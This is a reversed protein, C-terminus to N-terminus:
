PQARPKRLSQYPADDSIPPIGGRRTIVWAALEHGAAVGDDISGGRVRRHLYGANFADGAGTTDLPAVQAPVPWRVGDAFCGEEGLKVVVEGVGRDRWAAVIAAPDELGILQREDERMPSGINCLSIARDHAARAAAESEWLAPRYDSDFAVRGGAARVVGCLDFMVDRGAPPLIALSIMSFYLINANAAAARADHYERLEFVRRAASGDRWYTFSREGAADTTIAYLAPRRVPDTRMLSLDLGEGAWDNLLSASFSDDGLASIFAPRHGLRAM